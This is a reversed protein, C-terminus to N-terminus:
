ENFYNIIFSAGKLLKTAPICIGFGAKSTKWARVSELSNWGLKEGVVSLMYKDM